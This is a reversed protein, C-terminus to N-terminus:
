TKWATPISEASQRSGRGGTLFTGPSVTNVLIGESALTRALNKSVSILASKAATYAILTPSQRHTSHASVNVIRAWEASRLWPLAARVCHVASLTGLEFSHRWAEDDLEEVTGATGPGVTNILINLEGWRKGLQEFAVGVSNADAVDCVVGVPDPSGAGALARETEDLESGNRALVAVRAGDRALWEATARGMGQTGGTVAATANNLGLDM